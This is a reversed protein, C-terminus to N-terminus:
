SSDGSLIHVFLKEKKIKSIVDKAEARLNSHTNLMIVALPEGNVAVFIETAAGTKKQYTPIEIGHSTLINRNGLLVILEKKEAKELVKM